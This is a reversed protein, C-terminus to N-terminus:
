EPVGTGIWKNRVQKYHTDADYYQVPLNLQRATLQGIAGLVTFAQVMETRQARVLNVRANLLEQEQNLVDLVTRSGVQAEQRVGELAIEAARIQSNYSEISARAAQLGQWASIAAEVAQRRTDDIQLRAQNATHKAERTLAEPLGAQYLPITIQATLQAGDQRKIDIGSSRGADITRNAQASLNASPLLRGFQQDVAERQAAETYTASLVSPNNSRAMEVVEDLTGPLKFKPKPAKLKGPMSGVVREYTARSAQLTGEASIRAAISAALRSESQSVDTRTYEGVRFRDRAADLQRRLVQENNAQLELVAQNQVVDLYAAAANLLIQQENALVTARQAEVTREARRVAPGVTADYLPQTATVGVSKANNESGTEGGQFTSNTANRTIGATARVTPRYGSLAQPVSEDVARQRARQAALAPNNSYAQALADELSQASATDIGGVFAVGLTLATAMLHRAFRSRVTM